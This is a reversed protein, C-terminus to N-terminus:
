LNTLVAKFNQLQKILLWVALVQKNSHLYKVVPPSATSMGLILTSVPIITSPASVSLAAFHFLAKKAPPNFHLTGGEWTSAASSSTVTVKEKVNITRKVKKQLM